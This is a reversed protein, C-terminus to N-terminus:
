RCRNLKSLLKLLLKQELAKRQNNLEELELLLQEIELRDESLLLKIAPEIKGM